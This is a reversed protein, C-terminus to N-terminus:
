MYKEQMHTQNEKGTVDMRNQLCVRSEGVRMKLSRV